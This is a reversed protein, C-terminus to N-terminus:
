AVIKGMDKTEFDDGQLQFDLVAIKTKKFEAASPGPAALLIVAVACM